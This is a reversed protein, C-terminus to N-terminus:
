RGGDRIRGLFLRMILITVEEETQLENYRTYNDYPRQLRNCNDNTVQGAASIKL